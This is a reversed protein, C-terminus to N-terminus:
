KVNRNMAKLGVILALQQTLEAFDLAGWTTLIQPNYQQKLNTEKLGIETPTSHLASSMLGLIQAVSQQAFSTSPNSQVRNPKKFGFLRKLGRMM